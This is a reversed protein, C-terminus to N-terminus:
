HRFEIKAPPPYFSLGSTPNLTNKLPTGCAPTCEFPLGNGILSPDESVGLVPVILPHLCLWSISGLFCPTKPSFPLWEERGKSLQNGESQVFTM